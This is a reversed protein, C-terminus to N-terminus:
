VLTDSLPDECKFTIEFGYYTFPFDYGDLHLSSMTSERGSLGIKNYKFELDFCYPRAM